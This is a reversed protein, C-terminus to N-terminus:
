GAESFRRDAEAERQEFLQRLPNGARSPDPDRSTWFTEIFATAAADDQLALYAQIEQATAMRAIAGVLWQSLAPSLQTNILDVANRRLPPATGGDSACAALLLAVALLLASTSACRAGDRRM